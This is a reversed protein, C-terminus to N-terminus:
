NKASSAPDDFICPPQYNTLMLQFMHDISEMVFDTTSLAPETVVPEPDM